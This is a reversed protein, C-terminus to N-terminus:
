VSSVHLLIIVSCGIAIDIVNVDVQLSSKVISGVLLGETVNFAAVVDAGELEAIVKGVSKVERDGVFGVIMWVVDIFGVLSGVVAGEVKGNTAEVFGDITDFVSPSFILVVYKTIIM